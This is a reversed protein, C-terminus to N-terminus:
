IHIFTTSTKFGNGEFLLLYKGAPCNNIVVSMEPKVMKLKKVLKGSMDFICLDVGNVPLNKCFVNLTEKAPNPYISIGINNEPSVLANVQKVTIVVEDAASNAIGDNVILSFTYQTDTSVEPATFIPKSASVSSLTIGAPAIWFYTLTNGDADTSATGDLTVTTGENVTQDPGANAVPVKNVQKVTIVVEDAASNAIGDNVVLSFTYQTDSTVEPATFSPKSVTTSSLTIGAPATWLYTLTNSDADTSASGDLTVTAGENVTQNPGANAVPVKNVQKVTIVVEDATSGATGDNVVLNFTYQTDSTVEPATFIPNSVTTSSLTIGAPATWLYTLTNGDADTSVTGDLTVVAGENVTQDPGANAVPVKNVQKVTIVVEDATSNATGDNVVLSFTYQTDTSVEPATFTPQSATTSSLTIGAPATWLYTLTNGDADTSATGDLTVVAGENVTQDPGANSVPVKNVQKVTIVAEDATSGATGDNVVLSFTYQTDTSVEPATFTPQSATTSSLTIGAPATWLYTLTNGDADNSATGDLTVVAGENVTQDPGANAVPATNLPLVTIVVQDVASNVTGDNVILSFTYQTASTVSPATFTPSVATTSSLTIGAPASWSYTLTNDDPDASLSGNLAVTAGASVTQDPGANAVPPNNGASPVTITATGGSITILLSNNLTSNGLVQHVVGTNSPIYVVYAKYVGDTLGNLSLGSSNSTYGSYPNITYNLQKFIKQFTGNKYLAVGVNGSFTNIGYNLFGYSVGFTESTINSISAKTSTLGQSFMCINYTTNSVGDEKKIGTLISQDDTFGTAVNSPKLTSLSFYGNAYGGWGWNMHFLDSADYGDCVWAHGGSTSSQGSYIVPRGENLETKIKDMWPAIEIYDRNYAQIDADYGFYTKLAIGGNNASAASGGDGSPSGYDMEVSVGCHFMLQAVANKQVTNSAGSYTDTMNSWVYTTNGFDATLSTSSSSGDINTSYSHSGTGTTPWSYYKMVQAMATAVCGTVTRESNLPSIPCQLNFPDGQDWAINGLLPSVDSNLSRLSPSVLSNVDEKAVKLLDPNELVYSMEKKYGKLFYKVNDPIKDPNISGKESYALVPKFVDDGSVIVFGKGEAANFIYYFPVEKKLSRSEITGTESYVLSLAVGSRLGTAVKSGYYNQAISLAGERSIQVAHLSYSLFLFSILLFVSKINKM